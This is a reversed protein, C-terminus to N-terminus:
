KKTTKTRYVFYAALVAGVGAGYAYHMKDQVAIWGKKHALFIGALGIAAGVLAADMYKQKPDKVTIINRTTETGPKSTDGTASSVIEKTVVAKIVSLPVVVVGNYLVFDPKGNTTKLEGSILEGKKFFKARIATPNRPDGSSVVYPSKFDNTVIYTAKKM